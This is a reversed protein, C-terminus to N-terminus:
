ASYRLVRRRSLERQQAGRLGAQAGLVDHLFPELGLQAVLRGHHLRGAVFSVRRRAVEAVLDDGGKALGALLRLFGDIQAFLQTWGSCSGSGGFRGLLCFRRLHSIKLM